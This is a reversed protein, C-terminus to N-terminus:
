QLRGHPLEYGRAFAIRERGEDLQALAKAVLLPNGVMQVVLLSGLADEILEFPRYVSLKARSSIRHILM